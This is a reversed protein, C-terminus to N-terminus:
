CDASLTSPLRLGRKSAFAEIARTCADEESEPQLSIWKILQFLDELAKPSLRQAADHFGILEEM